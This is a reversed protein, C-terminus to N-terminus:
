ARIAHVVCWTGGCANAERGRSHFNLSATSAEFYGMMFNPSLDHVFFRVQDGEEVRASHLVLGM